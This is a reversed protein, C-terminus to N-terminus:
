LKSIVFRIIVQSFLFVVLGIIAYLVTNKANNIATSDGGSTIYKFGGLIVMLVSAVGVVFSLVNLVTVLVGEEGAVPNAPNQRGVCVESEPANICAEEFPDFQASVGAVPLIFTALFIFVLLLRKM